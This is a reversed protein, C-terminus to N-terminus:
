TIVTLDLIMHPFLLGVRKITGTLCRLQQFISGIFFPFLNILLRL